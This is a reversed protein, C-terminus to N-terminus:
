RGLAALHEAERAQMAEAEAPDAHDWGLLHLAGHVVLLAIEDDYTGTHDAANRRAVAPCVAIDGILHGPAADAGAGDGKDTPSGQEDIPFALVDTPRDEGLHDRNLAAMDDENVFVLTCEGTRGEAELVAAVLARWRELDVPETDQQDHAVVSPPSTVPPGDGRM